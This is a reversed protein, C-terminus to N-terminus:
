RVKRHGPAIAATRQSRAPERCYEDSCYYFLELVRGRCSPKHIPPLPVPFGRDQGEMATDPSPTHGGYSNPAAVHKVFPGRQLSQIDSWQSEVKSIDLVEFSYKRTLKNRVHRIVALIFESLKMYHSAIIKRTFLDFDTPNNSGLFGPYTRFYFFLDELLSKRSPGVQRELQTSHPIFDIYGGQFKANEYAAPLQKNHGM